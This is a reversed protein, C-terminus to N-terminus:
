YLFAGLHERFLERVSTIDNGGFSNCDSGREMPNQFLLKEYQPTSQAFNWADAHFFQKIQIGEFWQVRGEYLLVQNSDGRGRIKM